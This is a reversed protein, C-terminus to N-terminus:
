LISKNYKNRNFSENSKTEAYGNHTITSTFLLSTSQKFTIYPLDSLLKSLFHLAFTNQSYHIQYYVVFKSCTVCM